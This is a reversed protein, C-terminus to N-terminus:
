LIVTERERSKFRQRKVAAADKTKEVNLRDYTYLSYYDTRNCGYILIQVNWTHVSAIFCNFHNTGTGLVLACLYESVSSKRPIAVRFRMEM